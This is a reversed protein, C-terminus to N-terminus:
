RSVRNSHLRDRERGSSKEMLLALLLIFVFWCIFLYLYIVPIGLWLSSEAFLHLLPYNLVVVGLCFLAILREHKQKISM